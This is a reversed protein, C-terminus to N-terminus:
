AFLYTITETMGTIGTLVSTGFLTILILFLLIIYQVTRSLTSKYVAEKDDIERRYIVGVLGLYNWLTISLGFLIVGYIYVNSFVKVILFVFPKSQEFLVYMDFALSLVHALYTHLISVKLVFGLFPPVGGLILLLATITLRSLDSKGLKYLDSIRVITENNKNLINSLVFWLVTLLTSYVILYVLSLDLAQKQNDTFWVLPLLILGVNSISTWGLFRPLTNQRLAGWAGLVISVTASIFLLWSPFTESGMLFVARYLLGVFGIKMPILFLGLVPNTVGMYIEPAWQHNPFQSLKFLIALLILSFGGQLKEADSLIAIDVLNVSGYSSLLMLSLGFMFFTGVVASQVVYKYAAESATTKTGIMMFAMSLTTGLTAIFILILSEARLLNLIFYVLFTVAIVNEERKDFTNKTLAVYMIVYVTILVLLQLLNVTSDLLNNGTWILTTNLDINFLYNLTYLITVTLTFFFLGYLFMRVNVDKKIRGLFLTYICGLTLFIYSINNINNTINFWSNSKDIETFWTMENLHVYQPNFLVFTLFSFFYLGFVGTYKKYNSFIQHTEKDTKLVLSSNNKSNTFLMNLNNQLLNEAKSLLNM